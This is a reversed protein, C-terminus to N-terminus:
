LLPRRLYQVVTGYRFSEVGALTDHYIDHENGLKSTWTGSPMQRAMHQPTGARSYISVKEYGGELGDNDCPEYGLTRFAAVFGELTLERPVGPPWYANFPWWRRHTEGAAWAVCNYNVTPNSEISFRVHRLNPFEGILLARVMLNPLM